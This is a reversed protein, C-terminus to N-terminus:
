GGDTAGDDVSAGEALAVILYGGESILTAGIQVLLPRLRDSGGDALTAVMSLAARGTWWRWEVPGVRSDGMQDVLADHVTTKAEELDLITAFWGPVVGYPVDPSIQGAPHAVKRAARHQRRYEARSM